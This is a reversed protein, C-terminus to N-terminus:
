PRQKLETPAAQRAVHRDPVNDLLTVGSVIVCDKGIVVDKNVAVGIGIQTRAGVTVNGGLRAGDSVLVQSDLTSHHAVSCGNNLHCLPGIAAHPGVIALPGIYCGEGIAAQPSVVATIDVVTALAIGAARLTAAAAAAGTFDGFCVHAQRLGAAALAPLAAAPLVPLGLFDGRRHDDIFAVPTLAGRRHIVDLVVAGHRGAGYLVVAGDGITPLAHDAAAHRELHDKVMQEDIVAHGAFDRETLDHQDMLRRASRSVVVDAAPTASATSAAARHASLAEASDFLLALPQGVQGVTEAPLLPELFGEAEAEWEVTTKTTELECLAQGRTVRAGPEVLWRRLMVEQDNANLRPIPLTTASM